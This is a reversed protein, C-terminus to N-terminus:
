SQYLGAFCTVILRSETTLSNLIHNQYNRQLIFEVSNLTLVSTHFQMGLNGQATVLCWRWCVGSNRSVKNSYLAVIFWCFM